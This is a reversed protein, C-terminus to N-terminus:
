QKSTITNMINQKRKQEFILGGTKIDEIHGKLLTISTPNISTVTIGKPLKDFNLFFKNNGLYLSGPDDSDIHKVDVYLPFNKHNFNNYLNESVNFIVEVHSPVVAYREGNSNKVGVKKVVKLETFRQFNLSYYVKNVDYTVGYMKRLEVQGSVNRSIKDLKIHRTSIDKISDLKDINGYIKVEAPEVNIDGVQMYQGDNKIDIDIKVPVVKSTYSITNFAVRKHFINILTIGTFKENMKNELSQMDVIYGGEASKELKIDATTIDINAFVSHLLIKYGKGSVKCDVTFVNDTRENIKENTNIAGTIHVPVSIVTTFNGALSNLFWLLVSFALATGFIPDRLQIIIFRYIKKIINRKKEAEESEKIM